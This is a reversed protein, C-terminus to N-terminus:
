SSSDPQFKFKPTGESIPDSWDYLDFDEVFQELAEDTYNVVGGRFYSIIKFMKAMFDRDKPHKTILDPRGLKILAEEAKKSFTTISLEVMEKDYETPVRKEWVKVDALNHATYLLSYPYVLMPPLATDKKHSPITPTLDSEIVTLMKDVLGHIDRKNFNKKNIPLVLGKSNTDTKTDKKQDDVPKIFSEKKTVKEGDYVGATHESGKNLKKDLVDTFNLDEVVPKELTKLKKGKQTSRKVMGPLNSKKNGYVAKLKELEGRNYLDVLEMIERHRLTNFKSRFESILIMEKEEDSLENMRNQNLIFSMAGSIDDESVQQHKKLKEGVSKAHPMRELLGANYCELIFNENSNDINSWINEAIDYNFYDEKTMSLVKEKEDEWRTDDPDVERMELEKFDMFHKKWIKKIESNIKENRATIDFEKNIKKVTEDIEADVHDTFWTSYDNLKVLYQTRVLVTGDALKQTTSAVKSKKLDTFIAKLQAHTIGFEKKWERTELLYEGNEDVLDVLLDLFGRTALKLDLMKYNDVLDKYSIYTQKFRLSNNM